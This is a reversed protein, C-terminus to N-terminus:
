VILDLGMGKLKELRGLEEPLRQCQILSILMSELDLLKIAKGFAKDV